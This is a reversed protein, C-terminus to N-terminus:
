PMEGWCSSAALGGFRTASRSTHRRRGRRSPRTGPLVAVSTPLGLDGIDRNSERLDDGLQEFPYDLEAAPDSARGPLADLWSGVTPLVAVAPEDTGEPRRDTATATEHPRSRWYARGHFSRASPLKVGEIAEIRYEFNIPEFM